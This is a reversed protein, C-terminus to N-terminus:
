TSVYRIISYIIFAVHYFRKMSISCVASIKKSVEYTTCNLHHKKCIISQYFSAHSPSHGIVILNKHEVPWSTPVSNISPVLLSTITYMLKTFSWMRLEVLCWCTYKFGVGSCFAMTAFYATSLKHKWLVFLPTGIFVHIFVNRCFICLHMFLYMLLYM